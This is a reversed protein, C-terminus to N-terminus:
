ATKQTEELRDQEEPNWGKVKIEHVVSEQLERVAVGDKNKYFIIEGEDEILLCQTFSRYLAYLTPTSDYNYDDKLVSKM